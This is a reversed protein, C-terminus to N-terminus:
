QDEAHYRQTRMSRFRRTEILRALTRRYKVELEPIASLRSPDLNHQLDAIKVDLAVEDRSDLLRQIYDNYSMGDTRTLLFLSNIVRDSYGLSALMTLTVPTDEAVDHLLAVVKTELSANEGLLLMVAMPHQWYPKGGKDLQGDHASKMLTITSALQDQLPDPEM